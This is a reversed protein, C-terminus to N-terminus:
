MKVWSPGHGAAEEHYQPFHLQFETNGTLLSSLFWYCLPRHAFQCGNERNATPVDLFTDGPLKVYSRFGHGVLEM